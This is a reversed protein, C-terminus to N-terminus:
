TEELSLPFCAEPLPFVIKAAIRRLLGFDGSPKGHTRGAGIIPGQQAL